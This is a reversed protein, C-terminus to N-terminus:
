FEFAFRYGYYLLARISGRFIVKSSYVYLRAFPLAFYTESGSAENMISQIKSFRPPDVEEAAVIMSLM